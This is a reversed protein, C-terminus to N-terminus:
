IFYIINIKHNFNLTSIDLPICLKINNLNKFSTSVKVKYAGISVNVKFWLMKNLLSLIKNRGGTPTKDTKLGVIIM